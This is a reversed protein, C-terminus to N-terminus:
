KVLPRIIQLTKGQDNCVYAVSDTIQMIFSETENKRNKKCVRIFNIGKDEDVDIKDINDIMSYSVSDDLKYKYEEKIIM